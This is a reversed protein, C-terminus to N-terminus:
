FSRQLFLYGATRGSDAYGFGLYLAGIYLDAGVFASAGWRLDGLSMDDASDWVNGREHSMGVYLQDGLAAPLRMVSRYWIVRAVLSYAGRLSDRRLGSVSLFGGLPFEEYLPLAGNTRMGGTVGFIVRDQATVTWAKMAGFTIKSFDLDGSISSNAHLGSFELLWGDSPFSWSDLQDLTLHWRWGGIRDGFDQLSPDGINLTADADQLLAGVVIEGINDWQFGIDVGFSSRGFNYRAERSGDPGFLDFQTRMWEVRPRVFFRGDWTVPQFWESAIRRTQGIQVETRWEGNLENLQTRTHMFLLNYAGSGQLDDQINVGFRLYNPAQEKPALTIRLGQQGARAMLEFDIREFEGVSYLADLDRKLTDVSLPQGIQVRIRAQIVEDAIATPNELEIFAIEPLSRDVVRHRLLWEEWRAPDLSLGRLRYAVTPGSALGRQIAEGMLDFDSATIGSLDPRVLIDQPQLLDIAARLNEQGLMNIVQASVGFIDALDGRLLLPTSVDVAIVVQAGLARAVGIPLNDVLGGDVLLRGNIEMPTVVGPVAMSALLADALPGRSLVLPEGREIDTAVTRLRIPYQDFDQWKSTHLTQERLLFGLTQAGLLGQPLIFRGDRYGIQAQLAYSQDDQKRRMSLSQRRPRDTAAAVWDLNEIWETIEEPSMGAAYFGGVVAGMSTGVVIDIPVRYSELLQLVGAHAAGRAGGGSLVLAIRPRDLVPEPHADRTPDAEGLVPLFVLPILALARM